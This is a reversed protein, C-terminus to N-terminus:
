LNVKGERIYKEIAEARIIYAEPLKGSENEHLRAPGITIAAIELAKARIEQEQTM